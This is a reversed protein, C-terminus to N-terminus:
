SSKPPDPSPEWTLRIHSREVRVSPMNSLLAFIFASRHSAQFGLNSGDLFGASALTRYSEVIWKLPVPRANKGKSRSSNTEVFVNSSDFGVIWNPKGQSVSRIPQGGELRRLLERIAVSFRDASHTVTGTALQSPRNRRKPDSPRDGSSRTQGVLARRLKRIRTRIQTAPRGALNLPPDLEDITSEELDLLSDRDSYPHVAVSLHNRIWRDLTTRSSQTLQGNEGVSLEHSERLLAALTFRFTSRSIPGNLHNQRIRSELTASSRKGSPWQTAGAQGAYVLLPISEELAEALEKAGQGNAWWVYLGSNHIGTLSQPFSEAPVATRQDSLSEVARETENGTM